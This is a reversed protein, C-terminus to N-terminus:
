KTPDIIIVDGHDSRGIGRVGGIIQKLEFVSM